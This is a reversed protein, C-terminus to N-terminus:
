GGSFRHPSPGTAPSRGPGRGHEQQDRGMVDGIVSAVAPLNWYASHTWMGTGPQHDVLVDVPATGDHLRFVKAAAFALVDLPEWLNTWRNLSAPLEVPLSGGYPTLQGGRPDCVHFFAAQSGFTVLSETWLPVTATAMDVAIVGGLSHAVIRVPRAPTRGLGPDVEDIIERVRAHVADRHRQYVLVDGLFRTTGPGFRSRVAHNLRAGMAQVAAGAVRDLDDLRRRVLSRLRSDSDAEGGRLGGYPDDSGPTTEDLLAHALARGAERLLQADATRSLWETDAWAERVFEVVLDPDLGQGAGDRLGEDEADNAAALQARLAADVQSLQRGEDITEGLLAATFPGAPLPQPAEGDRLGDPGTQHVPLAADIFRDQAGLDGWHVPVMDVGAAAALVSVAATFEERDRNAVGHVVFVPDKM